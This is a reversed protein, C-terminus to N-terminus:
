YFLFFTNKKKYSVLDPTQPAPSMSDFDIDDLSNNTPGISSTESSADSTQFLKRRLSADRADHYDKTVKDCDNSSQQQDQHVLNFISSNLFL